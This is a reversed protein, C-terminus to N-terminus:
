ANLYHVTSLQQFLMYNLSTLVAAYIVFREMQSEDFEKPNKSGHFLNCRVRYTIDLLRTIDEDVPRLRDDLITKVIRTLDGKANQDLHSHDKIKFQTLHKEAWELLDTEVKRKECIAVIYNEIYSIFCERFQNIFKEKYAEKLFNIYFEIKELEHYYHKNKEVDKWYLKYYLKHYGRESTKAWDINYLTNFTFFSFIFFSPTYPDKKIHRHERSRISHIYETSCLFENYLYEYPTGEKFQFTKM